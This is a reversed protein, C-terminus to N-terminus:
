AEELDEARWTLDVGLAGYFGQQDLGRYNGFEAYDDSVYGAGFLVSGRWGYVLPCNRCQWRSLDPPEPANSAPTEAAEAEEQAAVPLGVALVLGTAALATLLPRWANHTLREITNM